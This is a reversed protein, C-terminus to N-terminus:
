DVTNNLANESSCVNYTALRTILVYIGGNLIILVISDAANEQSM